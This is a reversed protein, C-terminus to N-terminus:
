RESPNQTKELRFRMLTKTIAQGPKVLQRFWEDMEAKSEFGETEHLPRDNEMGYAYRMAGDTLHAITITWFGSVIVAAVDVQKSRYPKCSWNYLMIPKGVPWPKERITTIKRGERVAESFRANLPRKIM